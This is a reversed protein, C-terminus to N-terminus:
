KEEIMFDVIAQAHIQLTDLLPVTTDNQKVLLPIETCGLIAAQAGDHQLETIISLFRDRSKKRFDNNFLEELITKQIFNRDAEKPILTEIGQNGLKDKYFDMEMTAKTGLLAVKQFARKRIQRATAEAIHIIPVNIEMQLRDAFMHLTNACLAIGDAGSLILKRAADAVLSYLGEDDNQKQLADVDAYNFSYLICSAYNLGGLKQNVKENILRYYEISSAWGTGGVLGITKM